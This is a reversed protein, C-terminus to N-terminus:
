AADRAGGGEESKARSSSKKRAASKRATKAPAKAAAVTRPRTAAKSKAKPRAKPKVGGNGNEKSARQEQTERMAQRDARTAPPRRRSARPRHYELDKPRLDGYEFRQLIEEMTRSIKTCIRIAEINPFASNEGGEMLEMLEKETLHSLIKAPNYWRFSPVINIDGSYEQDMLAHIGNLLM